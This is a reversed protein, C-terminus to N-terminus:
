GADARARFFMEVDNHTKSRNVDYRCLCGSLKRILFMNLDLNTKKLSKLM